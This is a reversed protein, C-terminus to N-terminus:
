KLSRIYDAVTQKAYEKSSYYYPMILIKYDGNIKALYGEPGRIQWIGGHVYEVMFKGIRLSSHDSLEPSGNITVQEIKDELILRCGNDCTRLEPDFDCKTVDCKNEDGEYYINLPCIPYKVEVPHGPVDRNKETFPEKCDPYKKIIETAQENFKVIDLGNPYRIPRDDELNDMLMSDRVVFLCAMAKVVHHVGSDPDIDEGEWWDMLHRLAADYYVSARVGMERYNHAGYKRGGEMMALGLEMLPGCPVAHMSVKKTGLADKPNTCKIESKM